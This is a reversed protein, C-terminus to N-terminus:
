LPKAIEKMKRLAEKPSIIEIEHKFAKKVKSNFHHNDTTVFYGRVAKATLFILSDILPVKFELRLKDVEKFDTINPMEIGKIYWINNKQLFKYYKDITGEVQQRFNKQKLFKSLYESHYQLPIRKIVMRGLVLDRILVLPMECLNFFSTCSRIKEKNKLYYDILDFSPKVSDFLPFNESKVENIIEKLLIYDVLVNTDIFFNPKEKVM